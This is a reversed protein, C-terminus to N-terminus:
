IFVTQIAQGVQEIAAMHKERRKELTILWPASLFGLLREPAIHELSFTVTDGFNTDNAWNSGTPIQDYQHAELTVYALHGKKGKFPDNPDEAVPATDFSEGYYWNSQLASKPMKELFVDEHHWLYDSWIWPRSGAKETVDFYFLLDHWWLEYQRVLSYAHFRQHAHTEEDMGLHFFRPTDFLSICEQILNRCVEYYKPTSVMRSYDKLWTDHAASFNLKPIPELGMQRMTVIEDRLRQPSWANEVAIEPHSDYRVGDGLDLVVMNMGTEQMKLLLDNWLSDDFRLYPQAHNSGRPRENAVRDHWMNYSLHILNAWILKEHPTGALPTNYTPPPNAM